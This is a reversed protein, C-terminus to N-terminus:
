SPRGGVIAVAEAAVAVGARASAVADRSAVWQALFGASFADGAGTPDVRATRIADVRVQEKGREGVLVGNNGM